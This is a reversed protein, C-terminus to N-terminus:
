TKGTKEKPKPARTGIWTIAPGTLSKDQIFEIKFHTIKKVTKKATIRLSIDSKAKLEEAAEQLVQQKFVSLKYSEPVGLIKRLEDVEITIWGVFIGGTDKPNEAWSVLLEYFRWTYSSKFSAAQKLPYSTFQKQLGQLHPVMFPNFTAVIKGEKPKYKARIMLTLDESGEPLPINEFVKNMLGKSAKRLDRYADCTPISFAKAYDVAKLELHQINNDDKRPDLQSVLCEMARKERLSFRYYGRTLINSKTVSNDILDRGEQQLAENTREQKKRADAKAKAEALKATLDVM